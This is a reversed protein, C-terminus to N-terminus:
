VAESVAEVGIVIDGTGTARMVEVRLFEVSQDVAKPPLVTPVVKGARLGPCIMEKPLEVEGVSGVGFQLLSAFYEEL